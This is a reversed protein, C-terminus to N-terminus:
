LDYAVTLFDKNGGAVDAAGFTTSHVGAVFLRGPVAAVAFAGDFAGPPTYRAVWRRQGTTADYALVTFPNYAAVLALGDTSTVAWGTQSRGTLGGERAAWLRQGTAADIGLTVAFSAANPGASYGTPFVMSGDPSTGIAWAYDDLGDPGDYRHLWRREGTAVDYALTVMDIKIGTNIDLVSALGSLYVAEGNPSPTMAFSYWPGDLQETAASWLESGTAADLAVSSFGDGGVIVRGGISGDDGPDPIFAVHRSSGPDRRWLEQGTAGDYAIVTSSYQGGTTSSWGAVFVLERAAGEASVLTGVDLNEAQDWAGAESGYRAVWLRRGTAADVALTAYDYDSDGTGGRSPGTVYVRSGDDAVDVDLAYDDRAGEATGPGGYGAVWLQRGDNADYALVGFDEDPINPSTWGVARPGAVFVRSGDPSLVMDEANDQGGAPGDHTTAWTECRDTLGVICPAGGAGAPQALSLIAAIALTARLHTSRALM